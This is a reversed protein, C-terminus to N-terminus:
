DDCPPRLVEVRESLHVAYSAEEPDVAPDIATTSLAGAYEGISFIGDLPIGIAKFAELDTLANGYAFDFRFGDRELALLRAVKSDRM